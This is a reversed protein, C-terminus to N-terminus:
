EEAIYVKDRSFIEIAGEIEKLKAELEAKRKVQGMTEIKLPLRFIQPPCCPFLFILRWCFALPSMHFASVLHSLM